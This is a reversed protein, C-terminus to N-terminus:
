GGITSIDYESYACRWGYTYVIDTPSFDTAIISYDIIGWDFYLSYAMNAEPILDFGLIGASSTISLTTPTTGSILDVQIFSGLLKNFDTQGPAPLTIVTNSQVGLNYITNLTCTASSDLSDKVIPYVSRVAYHLNSPVIPHYSNTHNDIESDTASSIKIFGNLIDFGWDKMVKIVGAEAANAYSINAMGDTVVSTGNIKVDTVNGDIKKWDNWIRSNVDTESRVYIACNVFKYQYSRYFMAFPDYSGTVFLFYEAGGYVMGENGDIKYITQAGEYFYTDVKSEKGSVIDISINAVGNATVSTGNVKVDTVGDTTGGDVKEWDSWADDGNLSNGLRTYISGNQFKYQRTLNTMDLSSYESTVFLIYYGVSTDSLSDMSDQIRYIKPYNEFFYTDIESDKGDIDTAAAIQLTVNGSDDDDATLSKEDITADVYDEVETKTYYASFDIDSALKDWFEGTWSVNDGQHVTVAQSGVTIKGSDSVNYTWGATLEDVSIANIEDVTKTGKYFYVSSLKANVEEKTYVNTNYSTKDLKSSKLEAIEDEIDNVKQPLKENVYTVASDIESGRKLSQYYDM